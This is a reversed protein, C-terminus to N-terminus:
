KAGKIRLFFFKITRLTRMGDRLISLKSAGFTRRLEFSPVERIELNSEAFSFMLYQDFEFRFGIDSLNFGSQIERERRLIDQVIEKTHRENRIAWFGYCIETFNQKLLKNAIKTLVFAGLRRILTFDESGGGPLFRSGKIMQVRHNEIIELKMQHIEDESVPLDADLLFSFDSKVSQLGLAIAIGKGNSTQQHILQAYPFYKAIQQRTDDSSNGDVFVIEDFNRVVSQLRSINQSENKTPIIVAFTITM